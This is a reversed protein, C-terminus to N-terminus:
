PNIKDSSHSIGDTDRAPLAEIAPHRLIADVLEPPGGVYTYPLDIESAVCWAHDDPWWLNPGHEWGEADRPRGRFLLYERSPLSVRKRGPLNGLAKPSPM